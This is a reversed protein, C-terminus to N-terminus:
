SRGAAAAAAKARLSDVARRFKARHGPKTVKAIDLMEALEGEQLDAFLELDDYGATGLHGLYEELGHDRLWAMVSSAPPEGGAAGGTEPRVGCCAEFWASFLRQHSAASVGLDEFFQFDLKKGGGSDDEVVYTRAIQAVTDYSEEATELYCLLDGGPDVCRLWDAFSCTRLDLEAQSSAEAALAHESADTDGAVGAQDSLGAAGSEHLFWQFFAAQHEEDSAGVDEFFQEDLVRGGGQRAPVMYTKVIQSVSDYNEHLVELYGLLAGRSDVRLLWDRFPLTRLEELVEPSPVGAGGRGAGSASATGQSEAAGAAGESGM